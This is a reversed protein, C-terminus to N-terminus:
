RRWWYIVYVLFVVGMALVADCGILLRAWAHHRQDQAIAPPTWEVDNIHDSLKDRVVGGTFARRAEQDGTASFYCGGFLVPVDGYQTERDPDFGFGEVLVKELHIQVRGRIKCLLSYLEKNGTAKKIADDKRFLSYAWDEFAGCAHACLAEMQEPIPPKWVDYKHGFRQGSAQTHGVRRVLEQFGREEELGVVLAVVPYRLKFARTTIRLDSGVAVTMEGAGSPSELVKYPLLVLVGNVPCYPKRGRLIRRCLFELRSLEREREARDVIIKPEAPQAAPNNTIPGTQTDRFNTVEMTGRINFNQPPSTTGASAPADDDDRAVMTQSLNPKRAAVTPGSAMAAPKGLQTKAVRSLLSTAGAETCVIYGADRTVYWHIPATGQPLGKVVFEMGSGEFVNAAQVENQCGLVLFLPLQRLDIRQRELEDVGTQWADELDPYLAGEGELYLKLTKYVVIPIAIVLIAIVAIYDREFLSSYPGKNQSAALYFTGVCVILFLLTLLAAKTPVSFGVSRFGAKKRLWKALQDLRTLRWLSGLTYIQTTVFYVLKKLLEM